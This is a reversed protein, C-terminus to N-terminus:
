LNVATTRIYRSSRLARLRIPIHAPRRSGISPALRVSASSMRRQRPVEITAVLNYDQNVTFHYIRELSERELELQKIHTIDRLMGIMLVPRNNEYLMNGRILFWHYEQTYPTLMRIEIDELTRGNLKDRMREIYDPHIFGTLEMRSLYGPQEFRQTCRVGDQFVGEFLQSFDSSVDYEFMIDDTSEVATQYRIREREM